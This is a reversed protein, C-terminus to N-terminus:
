VLATAAHVIRIGIIVPLYFFNIVSPVNLMSVYALPYFPVDAGTEPKSLGNIVSVIQWNGSLPPIYANVSVETNEVSVHFFGNEGVTAIASGAGGVAALRNFFQVRVGNSGLTFQYPLRVYVSKILIGENASIISLTNAVSLLNGGLGAGVGGGQRIIQQERASNVQFFDSLATIAYIINGALGSATTRANQYCTFHTADDVTDITHYQKEGADDIFVIMQGSTFGSTDVCTIQPNGIVAVALQGSDAYQFPQTEIVSEISM